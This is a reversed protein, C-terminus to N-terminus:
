EGAKKFFRNWRIKGDFWGKDKNLSLWIFVPQGVIHDEPVFGWYRSDASKHRNDGMMFYYDMKFTYSDTPQGNIYVVSDKLYIENHEYNRIAHAYVAYNDPTIMLTEGRRPMYIPGYNDRTWSTNGLPYVDGGRWEPEIMVQTVFPLQEVQAKMARTLPLHYVLSNTAAMGMATLERYGMDTNPNLLTRDEKSIGLKDFQKESLRTGDTQVYYNYQVGDEDPLINGNIYVQNDVISLSDGPIGVCRKVYNERRDVPRWVIDGFLDKRTHVAERGYYHCLTYYDPNPVKVPVTDGTPFNFVVIDGREVKGLGKLRKYEWQPKEIYSKGGWPFTHQVLPFSLPTNPTRPGYAVKSVLLFDGVLLSKELSSTPIQYNQFLYLFIFYVAVLAFVIADIWSCVTYLLKNSDKYKKWWDYKIFRTIFLDFVLPLLLLWWYNGVWAVFLIYVISWVACKIWQSVPRKFRETLSTSM